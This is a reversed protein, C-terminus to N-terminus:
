KKTTKKSKTDKKAKKAAAKKKAPAKAKKDAKKAEAKQATVPKGTKRFIRIKDGSKSVEYGIRDPQGKDNIIAVNSVPLPREVKIKQGAQDAYPRIHRTYMNVGEVVVKNAAPMVKVIKGQKGKDKGATVLVQDNLKFKM